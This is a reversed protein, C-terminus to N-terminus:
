EEPLFAMGARRARPPADVRRAGDLDGVLAEMAAAFAGRRRLAALGGPPTDLLRALGEEGDAGCARAADEPTRGPDDLVFAALVARVRRVLAEPAPAGGRRLLGPLTGPEAAMAAALAAVGGGRCVVDAASLVAATARVHLLPLAAKVAQTFPRSRSRHLLREMCRETTEWPMTAVESAGLEHLARLDEVRDKGVELAALLSVSPFRARLAGFGPSLAAGATGFYPDVVAQTGPASRRLAVEVEHWSELEGV